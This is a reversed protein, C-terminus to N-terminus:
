RRWATFAPFTEAIYYENVSLYNSVANQQDYTDPRSLIVLTPPKQESLFAFTKEYVIQVKRNIQAQPWDLDEVVAPLQYYAVGKPDAVWWVLGDRALEAAALEAARKYDDKAHRPAFRVSLSSYGIIVAFIVAVGRGVLRQRWWWTLGFALLLSFLPTLPILHRPLVRWHIVLGLVLIFCVPLLVCGILLALARNGIMTKIELFGGIVVMGFVIGSFIIMPLFPLLGALGSARLDLMGPGVGLLGLNAYFSFLLTLMNSEHLLVPRAGLAFMRVDHAILMVVCLVTVAIAWYNRGVLEILSAKRIAVWYILIFLVTAAAWVVGLVNAGSSLVAGVCLMIVALSSPRQPSGMMEITAGFMMSAGMYLMIYPRIENLYYWLSASLCATLIIPFAINPKSRFPWILALNAIAFLGINSARMSLPDTAFVRTWAYM